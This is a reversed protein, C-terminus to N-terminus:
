SKAKGVRVRAPRLVKNKFKYGRNITEVVKNHSEAECEKTEVCDMIASDFPKNDSDIPEVGVDYLVQRFEKVIMKLGTDSIHKELLELNDLVPLLRQLLVMNALEGFELKEEATRRELNKYDALARKWNNELEEIRDQLKKINEDEEKKPSQNQSQDQDDTKRDGLNQDQPGSVQASGVSTQGNTSDGVNQNTNQQLNENNDSM